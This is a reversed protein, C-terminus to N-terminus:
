AYMEGGSSSNILFTKAVGIIQEAIKQKKHYLNNERMLIERMDSINNQNVEDSNESM